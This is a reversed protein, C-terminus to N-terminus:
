TTSMIKSKIQRINANYETLKTCKNEKKYQMKTFVKIRSHIFWAYTNVDGMLMRMLMRTELIPKMVRKALSTKIKIAFNHFIAM